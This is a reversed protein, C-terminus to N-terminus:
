PNVAKKPVNYLGNKKAKWKNSTKTLYGTNNFTTLATHYGLYAINNVNNKNM